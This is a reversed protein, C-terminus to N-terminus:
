AAAYYGLPRANSAARYKGGALDTPYTQGTLDALREGIAQM